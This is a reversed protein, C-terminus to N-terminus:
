RILFSHLVAMACVAGVAIFGLPYGGPNGEISVSWLYGGLVPGFCRALSVISQAVGNAYGVAEPPSMYNLLIAVSTFAFTVGCFRVATSIALATMLVLSGSSDASAFPGRYLVVTLYSPIFLFSGLRFMALHSLRGRPPLLVQGLNPYLYFQYVIQFICMIAIIQAFGGASLNLGGSDYDTVLYSMFIQDHTTTHLALLGYQLIIMGPLKSWMSPPRELEVQSKRAELITTLADTNSMLTDSRFLMSPAAPAPSSEVGTNAYISPMGKSVTDVSPALSAQRLRRTQPHPSAGLPVPRLTPTGSGGGNQLSISRRSFPSATNSRSYRRGRSTDISDDDSLDDDTQDPDDNDVNMAAAVWLDAINNVTNENAMVMRHAISADSGRRRQVNSSPLVSSTMSERRARFSQGYRSTFTGYGSTRSAKSFTNSRLIPLAASPGPKPETSTDATDQGRASLYGSLKQTLTKSLSGGTFTRPFADDDANPSTTLSEEEPIPSPMDGNKEPESSAATTAPGGDRGLFCAMISGVLTISAAVACPLLYPYLAFVSGSGFAGPWKTAPSEFFGGVIAGAVGGFGWCFGLIAYARGSNSEDTISAVAGRAVGVAGGFVGQLFRVAMAQEINKCLGFLACTVSGGFLCVVLVMRCGYKDAVTAWLLSTAFQTLFFTSVLIGTWFAVEADDSLVGFDKVMFLLFPTSVNALLFEGLMMISLVIISLTPLPTSYVDTSPMVTPVPLRESPEENGDERWRLSRCEDRDGNLLRGMARRFYAAESNHRSAENGGRSASEEDGMSRPYPSSM